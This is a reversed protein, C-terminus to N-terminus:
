DQISVSPIEAKKYSTNDMMESPKLGALQALTARAHVLGQRTRAKLVAKNGSTELIYGEEPLNLTTDLIEKIGNIRITRSDKITVQKPAPILTETPELASATLITSLTIILTTLSRRM